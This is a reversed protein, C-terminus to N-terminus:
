QILSFAISLQQIIVAHAKKVYARLTTLIVAVRDSASDYLVHEATVKGKRIIAVTKKEGENTTKDAIIDDVYVNIAFTRTHEFPM